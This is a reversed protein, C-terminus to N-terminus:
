NEFRWKSRLQRFSRDLQDRGTELIESVNEGAAAAKIFYEELAAVIEALDRHRVVMRLDGAVSASAASSSGTDSRPGSRGASYGIESPAPRPVSESGAGFDSRAAFGDSRSYKSSKDGEDHEGEDDDDDDGATSSSTSTTYHQQHQDGWESCRDEERRGEDEDEDEEILDDQPPLHHHHHPHNNQQHHIVEEKEREEKLRNFFESDPPSPPYFNEWDWASSAQSPTASYNSNVSAYRPVRVAPPPAPRSSAASSGSLIHPLKSSAITPASAALSPPPASTALSPHLLVPPAHESVSLPEGAAFRKLSSAAVLLSRLYDSHASALHHRSQVADKTLRRRERCRRVTDENDLKSAACGM